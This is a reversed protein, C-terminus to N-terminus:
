SEGARFGISLRNGSATREYSLNNAFSRVLRLGLGGARAGNPIENVPTEESTVPDFAPAEDDIVILYSGDQATAYRAVIPHGPKNAYGHRIINSVVEELCLNMAYQVSAPIAYQAALYEIWAPVLRLDGLESRLTLRDEQSSDVTTHTM